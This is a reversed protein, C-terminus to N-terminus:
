NPHFITSGARADTRKCGLIEPCTLEVTETRAFSSKTESSVHAFRPAAPRTTSLQLAEQQPLQLQGQLVAQLREELRNRGEDHARVGPLQHTRGPRHRRRPHRRPHGAPGRTRARGQARGARHIRQRGQRLAQVGGGPLRRQDDEQPAAVGHRVRRLGAHRQRGHGGKKKHM